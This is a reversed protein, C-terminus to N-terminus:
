IFKRKRRHKLAKRVAGQHTHRIHYHEKLLNTVDDEHIWTLPQTEDEWVVRYHRKGNIRKLGTLEKASYWKGKEATEDGSNDDPLDAVPTHSTEDTVVM